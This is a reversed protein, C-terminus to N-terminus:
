EQIQQMRPIRPLAKIGSQSKEEGGEGWESTMVVFLSKLRIMAPSIVIPKDKLVHVKGNAL